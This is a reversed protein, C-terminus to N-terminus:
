LLFVIVIVLFVYTCFVIRLLQLSLNVYMSMHKSIHISGGDFLHLQPICKLEFVQYCIYRVMEFYPLEFM